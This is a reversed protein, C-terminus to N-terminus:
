LGVVCFIYWCCGSRQRGGSRLLLIPPYRARESKSFLSEELISHCHFLLQRSVEFTVFESANLDIENVRM